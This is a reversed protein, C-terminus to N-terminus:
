QVTFYPEEIKATSLLLDPFRRKLQDEMAEMFMYETGYHGADIICLGDAVADLGTHHDIDGTVYVQAGSAFVDALLSKGSGTCVACRRIVREPNGYVRVSDLRFANRVFGAFERLSMPVELDGARGLGEQGNGPQAPSLVLPNLLKLRRASMEAMGLIDYNTHMAYACMGNQILRLVMRGHATHNNVKKLAKFIMPHHTLIFTAGKALADDIVEDTLDLSLYVHSVEGGDDGVLLGVNDWEEAASSPYETELWDILDM